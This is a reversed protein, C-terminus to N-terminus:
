DLDPLDRRVRGLMVALHASSDLTLRLLRGETSWGVVVVRSPLELSMALPEGDERPYAVDAADRLASLAMFEGEDPAVAAGHGGADDSGGGVGFTSTAAGHGVREGLRDFLAVDIVGPSEAYRTLLEEDRARAAGEVERAAAV